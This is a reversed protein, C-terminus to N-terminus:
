PKLACAQMAAQYRAYAGPEEGIPGSQLLKGQQSM